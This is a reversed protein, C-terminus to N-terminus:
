CITRRATGNRLRRPLGMAEMRIRGLQDVSPVVNWVFESENKRVQDLVTDYTERIRTRIEDRSFAYIPDVSTVSGGRGTLSANFSAPGDGCGLIRSAFDEESLAFMAVYEEFSRGWPVVNALNFTVDKAERPKALPTRARDM